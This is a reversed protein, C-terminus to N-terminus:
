GDRAQLRGADADVLQGHHDLARQFPRRVGGRLNGGALAATGPPERRVADLGLFGGELFFAFIGEAALLSGFVNGVFRSYGAWNTGFEFEQVIGTAVGLAFILGYIQTWFLALRRWKPDRTRVSATGIAILMLGLGMSLPPFIFHFSATFGFQIRSLQEADVAAGKAIVVDSM